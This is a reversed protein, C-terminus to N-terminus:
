FVLEGDESSAISEEDEEGDSNDSATKGGGSRVIEPRVIEPRPTVPERHLNTSVPPATEPIEELVLNTLKTPIISKFVYNDGTRSYFNKQQALVTRNPCAIPPQKLHSTNQHNSPPQKQKQPPPPPPPSVPMTITGFPTKTKVALPDSPIATQAQKPECHKQNNNNNGSINGSINSNSNGSIDNRVTVTPTASAEPKPNMSILSVRKIIRSINNNNNNNSSSSNNSSNDLMTVVSTASSVEPKSDNSILSVRRAHRQHTVNAYDQFDRISEGNLRDRQGRVLLGHKCIGRDRGKYTRHFGYVQLQRLFSKFRSMKFKTKILVLFEDMAVKGVGDQSGTDCHVRFSTGNPMWSILHSHGDKEANELLDYLRKPFVPPRKTKKRQKQGHEQVLIKKFFNREKPAAPIPKVAQVVVEKYTPTSTQPKLPPLFENYIDKPRRKTGDDLQRNQTQVGDSMAAAKDDVVVIASATKFPTDDSDKPTGGSPHSPRQKTGDDGPQRRNQARDGMAAANDEVVIKNNNSNDKSSRGGGEESSDAVKDNVDVDVDIVIVSAARSSPTDCSEKKTVGDSPHHATKLKKGNNGPSSNINLTEAGCSNTGISAIADIITKEGSAKWHALLRHNRLYKECRGNCDVAHAASARIENAAVDQLHSANRKTGISAGDGRHPTTEEEAADPITYERWDDYNESSGIVIEDLGCDEDTVVVDDGIVIESDSDDGSNKSTRNPQAEPPASLVSKTPKANSRYYAKINALQQKMLTYQLDLKQEYADVDDETMEITEFHTPLIATTPFRAQQLVAQILSTGTESEPQSSAHSSASDTAVSATTTTTSTKKKASTTRSPKKKLLLDHIITTPQPKTKLEQAKKSRSKGRTVMRMQEPFAKPTTKAKALISNEDVLSKEENPTVLTPMVEGAITKSASTQEDDDEEEQNPSESGIDTGGLLVLAAAAAYNHAAGLSKDAAAAFNRAADVANIAVAASTKTQVKEAKVMTTETAIINSSNCGRYNPEQRHNM